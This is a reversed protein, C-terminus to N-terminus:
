RHGPDAYFGMGYQFHAELFHPIFGFTGGIPYVVYSGGPALLDITRRYEAKIEEPTADLRDLVGNTDFGGCFTIQKGFRAKLEGLNTNCAQLTDIADVGIEVLDEFIPEIYGCSHHQYILGMEHVADVIRKLHPKLLTRFTEPSILMRDNAGYDDHANIVDVPYYQAIKKFYAIKYDAMAGFFEYCSEPDEILACMAETMGMLAHLREFMGNIVMCVGLKGGDLCTAGNELPILGAGGAFAVFNTHLDIEAQKEWDVAELDPFTVVEKWDAIDKLVPESGPTTMPAGISPEFTWSVGFGDTGTQHGPYREMGPNAQFLGIDTYFCPIWAPTGHRYAILANERPTLNPMDM